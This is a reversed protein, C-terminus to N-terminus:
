YVHYSDAVGALAAAASYGSAKAGVTVSGRAIDVM